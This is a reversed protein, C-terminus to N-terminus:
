GLWRGSHMVREIQGTEDLLVLDAPSGPAPRGPLGVAAAPVESAAAIAEALTAGTMLAWGRVAQDLTIISGALKGNATRAAGDEHAEIAVEAMSYRGPPAGAAPTSDTTLFTRSGAARRILELVLPDLHVGDAIVGVALRDETLAVGALGPARHHLPGMANFVHTVLRAGAEVAREAEAASAGTHGLAVAVGRGCLDAILKLAGPLEPALTVLRVAPSDFYSPIGDDPSRLRDRRHMGAHAPDLFPGELHVGAIPSSPDLTREALEEMAREAVPADLSVLTPLYSTVGRSLLLRDIADLADPGDTVEHGAAGNVQLDCFGPAIIGDHRLDPPRPPQGIACAAVREGELEIWGDALEGHLALRGAVISSM